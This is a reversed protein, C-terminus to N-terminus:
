AATADLAYGDMTAHDHPPNDSEAVVDEALDRGAIRDIPVRETPRDPGVTERLSLVEEVAEGRWCMEPDDM